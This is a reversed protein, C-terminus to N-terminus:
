ITVTLQQKLKLLTSFFFDIKGVLEINGGSHDWHHHTAFVSNTVNFYDFQLFMCM